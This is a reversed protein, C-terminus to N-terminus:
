EFEVSHLQRFEVFEEGTEIISVQVVENVESNIFILETPLITVAITSRNTISGDVPNRTVVDVDSECKGSM